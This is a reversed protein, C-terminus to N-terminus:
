IPKGTLPVEVSFPDVWLPFFKSRTSCIREKILQGWQSPLCAFIFIASKTAKFTYGYVKLAYAGIHGYYPYKETTNIGEVANESTKCLFLLFFTFYDTAQKQQAAM